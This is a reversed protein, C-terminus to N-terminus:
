RQAVIAPYEARDSCAFVAQTVLGLLPNFLVPFLVLFPVHFVVLFVGRCTCGQFAASGAVVGAVLLLHQFNGAVAHTAVAEILSAATRFSSALM